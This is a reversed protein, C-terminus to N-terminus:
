IHILSLQTRQTNTINDIQRQIANKWANQIKTADVQLAFCNYIKGINTHFATRSNWAVSSAKLTLM